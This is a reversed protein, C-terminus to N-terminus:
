FPNVYDNLKLLWGKRSASSLEGEGVFDITVNAILSSAVTNSASVDDGRVMGHLVMYQREKSFGTSRIGEILLNGNPLIDTVIVSVTATLTQDNSIEGKGEYDNDGSIDTSPTEGNHTLLGSFLFQSISNTVGATKENKTKQTASLSTTEEVLVTLIDGPRCARRDAYHSEAQSGAKMWLSEAGLSSAFCIVLLSSALKLSIKM